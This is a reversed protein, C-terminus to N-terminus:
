AAPAFKATLLSRYAARYKWALFLELAMFVAGPPLGAPQLFVHFAIINVLIPMLIVLALPVFRNVLLLVGALLQTGSVLQMMYGSKMMAGALAMAGEPMPTKPEPIFHFFGNLGFITFGLGMLIRAAITLYCRHCSGKEAPGTKLTPNTTSPADTM